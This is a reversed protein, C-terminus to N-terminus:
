KWERRPANSPPPLTRYRFEETAPLSTQEFPVWSNHQEVMQSHKAKVMDRMMSNMRMNLGLERGRRIFYGSFYDVDTPLGNKVRLALRSPATKKGIIDGWLVKQLRRSRLFDRVASSEAVEPLNEIVAVLEALLNRMMRRAPPNQLIGKYSTGMLVCVPEVVTTFLMDPLKFRLWTDYATMSCRLDKAEQLSAVFNARTEKKESGPSLFQDIQPLAMMTQGPRLQRVSNHKWNPVLRHSMHGLLFNPSSLSGAFIRDKVDELVGMGDSMLCVTSDQDLRHKVTEIADVAEQASGTVILQEIKGDDEAADKKDIAANREVRYRGRLEVRRTQINSQTSKPRGGARGLMDVSEYVGSLAHAIFRSRADDGLIHIKHGSPSRAAEASLLVSPVSFQPPPVVASAYGPALSPIEWSPRSLSAFKEPPKTSTTKTTAPKTADESHSNTTVQGYCRRAARGAGISGGM